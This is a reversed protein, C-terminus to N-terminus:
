VTKANEAFDNQIKWIFLPNNLKAKKKSKKPTDVQLELDAM